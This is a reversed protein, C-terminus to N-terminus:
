ENKMILEYVVNVRDIVDQPDLYAIFCILTFDTNYPDFWEVTPTFAFCDLFAKDLIARGMTIEPELSKM